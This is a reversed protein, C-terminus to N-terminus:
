LGFSSVLGGRGQPRDFMRARAASGLYALEIGTGRPIAIPRPISALGGKLLAGQSVHQLPIQQHLNAVASRSLSTVLSSDSAVRYGGALDPHGSLLTRRGEKM